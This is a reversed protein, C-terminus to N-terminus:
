EDAPQLDDINALFGVPRKMRRKRAPTRAVPKEYETLSQVTGIGGVMALEQNELWDDDDSM